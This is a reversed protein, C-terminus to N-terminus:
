GVDMRRQGALIGAQEGAMEWPPRPDDPDLGVVLILPSEIWDGPKAKPDFRRASFMIPAVLGGLHGTGDSMLGTRQPLYFAGDVNVEMNLGQRRAAFLDAETMKSPGEWCRRAIGAEPWNRVAIEVLHREIFFNGNHPIVDLVRAEGSMVCLHAFVLKSGGACHFHRFGWKNLLHDLVRRYIVWDGKRHARKFAARQKKMPSLHGALDRGTEMAAILDRAGALGEDGLHDALFVRWRLLPVTSRRALDARCAFSSAASANM